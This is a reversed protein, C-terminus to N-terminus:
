GKLAVPDSYEIWVSAVWCWSEQFGVSSPQIAPLTPLFQYAAPGTNWLNNQIHVYCQQTEM